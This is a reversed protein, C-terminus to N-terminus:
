FLVLSDARNDFGLPMVGSTLATYSAGTCGPGDFFRARCGALRFSSTRNRSALPLTVCVGAGATVPFPPLPGSFNPTDLLYARCVLNAQVDGEPAEATGENADAVGATSPPAVEALEPLHAM